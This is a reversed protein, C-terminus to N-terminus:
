CAGLRKGLDFSQLRCRPGSSLVVGRDLLDDLRKADGTFQEV